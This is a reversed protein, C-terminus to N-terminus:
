EELLKIIRKLNVAMISFACQIEMGFIGAYVARAYGHSNKLEANKAEIMYRDRAKGKFAETNQFDEHEQHTHSKITVSYSKSEAGEKYCGKKLSCVKCKEIDFFYTEVAQAGEVERKKKGNITKRISLHGAKCTYMNADKNFEFEGSTRENGHTVTKSLRSILDISKEKCYEINVKESYAMDGVVSDIELGSKQANEILTTLEKGDHRDGTTVTAAVILREETIAIHSKFGFFSNDSSKYGIKADKEKSVQNLEIVDQLIEKLFNLKSNIEESLILDASNQVFSILLESYDIEDKLNSSENKKPIKSKITEDFSYCAKRLKKSAEKLANLSSQFNYKSITHTSDVILTKGKILSKNLAVQTTKNLIIDLLNNDKLRQKRFKTLSSPDIVDDEPNKDLFFKIAMDVKSRKVLDVDSLSYLSKLLLYKVMEIPNIATRGNNLCYNNKLEDFVFSFDILEKIKRLPHDKDIIIDYLSFFPSSSTKKNQVLM